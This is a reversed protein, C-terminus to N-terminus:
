NKLILERMLDFNNYGDFLKYELYNRYNNITANKFSIIKNTKYYNNNIKIKEEKLKNNKIIVKKEKIENELKLIKEKLQKEKEESQKEKFKFCYSKKHGKKGCFDCTYNIKPFSNKNESKNPSSSM